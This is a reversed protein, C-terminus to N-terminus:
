GVEDNARKGVLLLLLVSAAAWYFIVNGGVFVTTVFNSFQNLTEDPLLSILISVLFGTQSLALLLSAIRGFTESGVPSQMIVRSLIFLILFFVAAFGILRAPFDGLASVPAFDVLLFSLAAAVLLPMVKGRAVYLFAYGIAASVFFALVLFDWSGFNVFDLLGM